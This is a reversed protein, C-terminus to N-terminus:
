ITNAPSAPLKKLAKIIDEYNTAKITGSMTFFDLLDNVMGALPASSKLHESLDAKM